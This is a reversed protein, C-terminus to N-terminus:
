QEPATKGPWVLYGSADRGSTQSVAGYSGDRWAGHQYASGSCNNPCPGPRAGDDYAGDDRWHESRVQAGNDSYRWGSSQESERREYAYVGGDVTVGREVYPPNAAYQRREVYAPPPPLQRSAPGEAYAPANRPGQDDALPCRDPAVNPPCSPREHNLGWRNERGDWQLSYAPPAREREVYVQPPTAPAMRVYVRTPPAPAVQVYVPPPAPPQAVVSVPPGAPPPPAKHIRPPPMPGPSPGAEAYVREHVRHDTPPANRWAEDAAEANLGRRAEEYRYIFAQSASVDESPAERRVIVREHRREVHRHDVAAARPHAAPCAQPGAAPTAAGHAPASPCYFIPAAPPPASDAAAALGAWGLALGGSLSGLAISLRM